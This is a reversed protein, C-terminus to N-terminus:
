QWPASSRRHDPTAAITIVETTKGQSGVRRRAHREDGLQCEKTEGPEDEGCHGVQRIRDQRRNRHVHDTQEREEHEHPREIWLSPKNPGSAGIRPEPNM